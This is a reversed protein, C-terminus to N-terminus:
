FTLILKGTTKSSQLDKHASRVDRFPYHRCPPMHVKEQKLLSFIVELAETMLDQREFLFSLNFTAVTKNQNCRSIPSFAPTLLYEWLLKLRCPVGRNKPFMSHFGYVILKGAPKLHKIGDKLTTRGNGDLIVDLGEPAIQSVREWLPERSKDIVVDAGMSRAVAVKHSSGVVGITAWGAHKCLQLLASGVGGAASHVLIHSKPFIRAVMHLAYYATLFIVPFGAGDKMGVNSPLCVVQNRPVVVHSSYGNFRTIGIVKTGISLDTVGDGVAEVEGSFEFGPTIPWGVYHKASAYYGMRVICDAYNVGVGKTRVLVQNEGPQPDPFSEMVLEEFGGPRHIVVKEM